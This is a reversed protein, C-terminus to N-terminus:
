SKGIQAVRCILRFLAITIMPFVMAGSAYAGVALGRLFRAAVATEPDIPPLADIVVAGKQGMRAAGLRDM